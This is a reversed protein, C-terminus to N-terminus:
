GGMSINGYEQDSDSSSDSSTDTEEEIEHLPIETFFEQCDIDLSELVNLLQGLENSETNEVVCVGAVVKDKSQQSCLLSHHKNNIDQRDATHRNIFHCDGKRHKILCNRCLQQDKIFATKANLDLLKFSPCLFAFRCTTDKCQCNSLFSSFKPMKLSLRNPKSIGDM